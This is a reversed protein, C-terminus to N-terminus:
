KVNTEVVLAVQEDTGVAKEANEENATVKDLAEEAPLQEAATRRVRWGAVFDHLFDVM